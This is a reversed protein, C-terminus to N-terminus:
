LDFLKAEVAKDWKYFKRLFYDRYGLLVAQSRQRPQHEKTLGLLNAINGGIDRILYSRSKWREGISLNEKMWLLRNRTMLYAAVRSPTSRSGKHYVTASPIVYSELGNRRIRSCWEAEDYFAFYREDLLGEKRFVDAPALLCCGCAFETRYPPDNQLETTGRRDPALSFAAREPIWKARSFWIKDVAPYYFILPSVAGVNELGSLGSLLKEILDPLVLADNNLLMIYDANHNLAYEIGINCGGCFGLNESQKLVKVGPFAQQISEAEISGSGNDVVITKVNPYCLREISELCELTDALGNWNLIVIHVSPPNM